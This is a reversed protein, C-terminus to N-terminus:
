DVAQAINSISLLEANKEKENGNKILPDTSKKLTKL